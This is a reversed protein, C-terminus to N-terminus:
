QRTGFVDDDPRHRRRAPRAPPAADPPPPASVVAADPPSPAPVVAIAADPLSEPTRAAVPIPAPPAAPADTRVLLLALGAGVALAAAAVLLVGRSSRAGRPAAVVQGASGSFTSPGRWSQGPLPTPPALRLLRAAREASVTGQAATAAFPALAAALEAMNGFRREPEKELARAVAAALGPPISAPLPPLPDLAVKLCVAPFTDAEFPRGGSLLEFLVIGVSWVDSRADVDKSARMQEPSMYAPTGLVSSTQTLQSASPAKSIGFDLVKVLPTGDPRSTLFFNAPKVDRHVIGLAHAEALAECAQLVLDVAEGPSPRRTAILHALDFGELYEMVLYPLGDDLVGVDIVRAVHESKLKVAAQGERVFREVIGPSAAAQPLLFKIAVPQELQLHWALTVVGMGGEGLVRDIRYKGLLTTGPRVM